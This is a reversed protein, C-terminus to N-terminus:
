AGGTRLRRLVEDVGLGLVAVTKRRSSAGAILRVASSPLSLREALGRVLAENAAGERAKGQVRVSLAKRWPDVSRVEFRTANPTVVLDLLVLGSSADERVALSADAVPVTM